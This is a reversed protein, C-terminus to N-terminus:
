RQQWRQACDAVRAALHAPLQLPRSQDMLLTDIFHVGLRRTLARMLSFEPSFWRLVSDITRTVGMGLTFLARTVASVHATAGIANANAAGCLERTLLVPMGKLLTIPIENEMVQMLAAGLRPRPDPTVQHHAARAQIRAFHAEAAAMTDDMHVKEIGLVHGMVNWAHLVAVEDDPLLALGLKRMSRLYVYSFTLLTYALEQQNCPLGKKQLDWGLAYLTHHLNTSQTALAPHPAVIARAALADAPSQRLILHRITAHILRVKLVQAIGGGTTDTLGGPMMVPFIMAGTARLRYDAHQDLQGTAQLVSALDPVVYCEPLSSCFLLAVSLPGSSMFVTEARAIKARDAWPPLRRAEEVFAKLEVLLNPNAHPHEWRDLSANDTWTAIIQNVERIRQWQAQNAAIADGSTSSIAVPQWAGLIRAIATDALPDATFEAACPQANPVLEAESM